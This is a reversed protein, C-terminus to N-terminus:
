SIVPFPSVHKMLQTTHLEPEIIRWRGDFELQIQELYDYRDFPSRLKMIKGLLARMVGEHTILVAGMEKFERLQTMLRDLGQYIRHIFQEQSEGDHGNYQPNTEFQHWHERDNLTFKELSKGQLIGLNIEELEQITQIVLPFSPILHMATQICRKLSSSYVPLHSFPFHESLDRALEIGEECLDVNWRGLLFESQDPKAHRILILKM